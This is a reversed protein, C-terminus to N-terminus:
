PSPETVAALSRKLAAADLTEVPLAVLQKIRAEIQGYVAAYEGHTEAASGSFGAPDRFPWHLVLPHGPWVPCVEGAANDCITIVLDMVPAEPGGFEHWNKSRLHATPLGRQEIEALSFPSVRGAPHSGASHGKFRGAGLDDLISEAMISRCSNGTCLFLV